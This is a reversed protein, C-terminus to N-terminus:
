RTKLIAGLAEYLLYVDEFSNYLPAPSFRIVGPDRYDTIIGAAALSKQLAAGEYYFYVSLQAGRAEERRPTIVEFAGGPLKTFLYEMYGTLRLSKARLRDLGAEMFLELSAELGGMVLAAAVSLNWGDAGREPTFDPLMDFRTDLRSGGWGGFRPFAPDLSFREHIYVAGAAGPGGNLYKYSCWVAFDVDWDHLQMPVNGVAHALDYGALAGVAHAAATITKLDFNQGTYYNVGGILVVALSPGAQRIAELLDEERILKEGPRPAVEILAEKPDLGHHIAQTQAAYQDSPFAGAELLIKYREQTPRYFSCLLLHLNVTLTNMVSVEHPLAGTLAALPAKFRDAYYMWPADGIMYGGVAYTKWANMVRHVYAEAKKPQLGLSNGCFYLAPTNGALPFHFQARFDKLEDARDQSLAYDLTDDM